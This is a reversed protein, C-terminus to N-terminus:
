SFSLKCEPSFEILKKAYELDESYCHFIFNKFDKEKLIELVDNRSGRNHIIIPLNYKKALKIQM